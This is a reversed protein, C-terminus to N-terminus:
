ICNQEPNIFKFLEIYASCIYAYNAVSEHTDGSEGDMKINTFLTFLAGNIGGDNKVLGNDDLEKPM